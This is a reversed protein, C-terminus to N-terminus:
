HLLEGMQVGGFTFLCIGRERHRDRDMVRNQQVVSHIVRVLHSWVFYPSNALVVSASMRDAVTESTPEMIAQAILAM